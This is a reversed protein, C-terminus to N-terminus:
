LNYEKLFKSIKKMLIQITKEDDDNIEINKFKNNYSSEKSKGYRKEFTDFYIYVDKWTLSSLINIIFENFM